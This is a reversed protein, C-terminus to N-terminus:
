LGEPIAKAHKRPAVLWVLICGASLCGMVIFFTPIYSGTIDHLFGAFWPGFAASITIASALLGYVSGVRNGPFLDATITPLISARFGNGFGYCLIFFPIKVWSFSERVWMLILIGTIQMCVGVTLARERGIRDSM